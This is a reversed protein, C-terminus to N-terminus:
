WAPAGIVCDGRGAMGNVRASRESAAIRCLRIAPPAANRAAGVWPRRGRGAAVNGVIIEGDSLWIAHAGAGMRSINVVRGDIDHWGTEALVLAAVALDGALRRPDRRPDDGTGLLLDGRPWPRAAALAASALALLGAVPPPPEVPLVFYVAIGVAFLVPVWLAWRPVTAATDDISSAAPVPTEWREGRRWRYALGSAAAAGKM